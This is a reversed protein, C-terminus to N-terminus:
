RMLYNPAERTIAADHIDGQSWRQHDACRRRNGITTSGTYGHRWVRRHHIVDRVPRTLCRGRRGPVLKPQDSIRSSTAASGRWRASWGM